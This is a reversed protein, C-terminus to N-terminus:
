CDMTCKRFTIDELLRPPELLASANNTPLYPPPLLGSSSNAALPPPPPLLLSSSNIDQTWHNPLPLHNLLLFGVPDVLVNM